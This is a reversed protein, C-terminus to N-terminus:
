RKFEWNADAPRLSLQTTYYDGNDSKLDIVHHVKEVRFMKGNIEPNNKVITDTLKFTVTDGWQYKNYGRLTVTPWIMDVNSLLSIVGQALAEAGGPPSLLVTKPWGARCIM